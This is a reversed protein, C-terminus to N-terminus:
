IKGNLTLEKIQPCLQALLKLSEDNIRLNWDCDGTIQLRYLNQSHKLMEKFQLHNLVSPSEYCRIQELVLSHLSLLGIDALYTALEDDSYFHLELNTLQKFQAFAKLSGLAGFLSLYHIFKGNGFVINSLITDISEYNSLNGCILCKINPGLYRVSKGILINDSIDLFILQDCHKIVSTLQDENLKCQRLTLSTLNPYAQSLLKWGYDLFFGYFFLINVFINCM